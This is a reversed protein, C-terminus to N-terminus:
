NEMYFTIGTSAGTINYHYLHSSLIIMSWQLEYQFSESPRKIFMTKSMSFSLSIDLLICMNIKNDLSNEISFLIIEKVARSKM